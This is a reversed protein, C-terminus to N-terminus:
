HGSSCSECSEGLLKQIGGLRGEVNELGSHRVSLRCSAAVGRCDDALTIFLLALVDGDVAQLGVTRSWGRGTLANEDNVVDETEERLRDLPGINEGVRVLFM